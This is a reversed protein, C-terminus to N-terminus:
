VDIYDIVDAYDPVIHGSSPRMSKPDNLHFRMERQLDGDQFRVLTVKSHATEEQESECYRIDLYYVTDTKGDAHPVSFKLVLRADSNKRPNTAALDLHVIGFIDIDDKNYYTLSVGTMLPRVEALYWDPRKGNLIATWNQRFDGNCIDRDDRPHPHVFSALDVKSGNSYSQQVAFKIPTPTPEKRSELMYDYRQLEYQRARSMIAFNGDKSDGTTFEDKIVLRSRIREM